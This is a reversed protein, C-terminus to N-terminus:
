VEVVISRELRALLAEFVIEAGDIRKAFLGGADARKAPGLVTRDIVGIRGIRAAEVHQVAGIVQEVQSRLAAVLRRPMRHGPHATVVTVSTKCCSPFIVAILIWPTGGLLKGRVTRSAQWSFPM